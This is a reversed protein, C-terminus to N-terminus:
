APLPEAVPQLGPAPDSLPAETEVGIEVFGDRVRVPYTTLDCWGPGSTKSGTRVCFRAAHWPCILEHGDLDGQDLPVGMHTCLADVAYHSDQVRVVAIKKGDLEITRAEREALETAGVTRHYITTTM